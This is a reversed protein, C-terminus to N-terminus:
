DLSEKENDKRLSLYKELCANLDNLSIPKVFGILEQHHVQEPAIITTFDKLTNECTQM